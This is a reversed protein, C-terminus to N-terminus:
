DVPERGTLFMHMFDPVRAEKLRTPSVPPQPQPEGDQDRIVMITWGSNLVALSNRARRRLAEPMSDPPTSACLDGWVTEVVTQITEDDAGEYESKAIGTLALLREPELEDLKLHRNAEFALALGITGDPVRVGDRWMSQLADCPHDDIEAFPEFKPDLETGSITLFRAPQDWGAEELVEDLALLIVRSM